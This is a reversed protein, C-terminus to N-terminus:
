RPRRRVPGYSRYRELVRDMEDDPLVAPGGAQRALLYIGALSEVEAALELAADISPGIAILGHHALLCARRDRLARLAHDSLAQTGFTAYPACRIDRGGAVAVAYHFAPLGSPLCALATAAPSHAHVIAMADARERYIDRHFRWESSPALPGVAGDAGRDLPFWCLERAGVTAARAGTPTILCGAQGGRSMRLSLNGAQGQGLGLPAFQRAARVLASRPTPARASM